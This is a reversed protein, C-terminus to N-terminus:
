VCLAFSPEAAWIDANYDRTDNESLRRNPLTFTYRLQLSGSQSPTVTTGSVLHTVITNPQVPVATFPGATGVYSYSFAGVTVPTASGPVVMDVLASQGIHQYRTQVGQANLASWLKFTLSNLTYTKQAIVNFSYAVTFSTSAPTQGSGAPGQASSVFGRDYNLGTTRNEGGQANYVWDSTAARGTFQAPRTGRYTWGTQEPQVLTVTDTWTGLALTTTDCGSAAAAPAAVALAVVPASWAAATLITRRDIGRPETSSMLTGGLELVRRASAERVSATLAGADVRAVLVGSRRCASAGLVHTVSM